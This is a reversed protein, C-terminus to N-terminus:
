SKITYSKLPLGWTPGTQNSVHYIQNQSMTLHDIPDFQSSDM